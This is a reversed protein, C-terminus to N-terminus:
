AHVAIIFTRVHMPEICVNIQQASCDVRFVQVAETAGECASAHQSNEGPTQSHVLLDDQLSKCEAHEGKFCVPEKEAEFKLRGGGQEFEKLVRNASLTAEVVTLLSGKPWAVLECIDLTSRGKGVVGATKFEPESKDLVKSGMETLAHMRAANEDEGSTVMPLSLADDTGMSDDAIITDTGQMDQQKVLPPRKENRALASERLTVQNQLGQDRSRLGKLVTQKQKSDSPDAINSLRVLFYRNAANARAGCGSSKHANAHSWWKSCSRNTEVLSSDRSDRETLNYAASARSHFARQLLTGHWSTFTLMAVDSPFSSRNSFAGNVNTTSKLSGRVQVQKSRSTPVEKLQSTANKLSKSLQKTEFRALASWNPRWADCSLNAFSRRPVLAAQAPQLANSQLPSEGKASSSSTNERIVKSTDSATAYAHPTGLESTADVNSSNGEFSISSTPPM